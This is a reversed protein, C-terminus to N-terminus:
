GCTVNTPSANAPETVAPANGVADITVTPSYAGTSVSLMHVYRDSLTATGRLEPTGGEAPVTFTFTGNSEDAQGSSAIARLTRLMVDAVNDNPCRTSVTFGRGGDIADAEYARDGIFVKTITTPQSPLSYTAGGNTGGASSGEGHEVQQVRDPANYTVEVSPFRATFGSANATAAAASRLKETPSTSGSSMAGSCAVM